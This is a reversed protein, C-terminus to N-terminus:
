MQAQEASHQLMFLKLIKWCNFLCSCIQIYEKKKSLAESRADILEYLMDLENQAMDKYMNTISDTISKVGSAAELLSAKLGGLKEQYELETYQGDAYLENLNKIDNSYNAVEDRALEYQKVLNAIHAAGYETLEGDKDFLMSDDILGDIGKLVNQLRQAAAHAREFARWYVDDRLADKLEEIEVNLNNINTQAGYWIEKWEKASKGGVNEGTKIATDYNSQAQESQKLYQAIEKNVFEIDKLYESEKLDQGLAKELKRKSDLFATQSDLYKLQKEIKEFPIQIISNAYEVNAKEADKIAKAYGNAEAQWEKATKGGFVGGNAEAKRVNRLAQRYEKQYQNIEKNNDNILKQYDKVSLMYGKAEKLSQQAKHLDAFSNLYSLQKEAKEFPINKIANNWEEQSVACEKASNKYGKYANIADKYEQSSKTWYGTRLNTRIQDMVAAAENEYNRQESRSQKILNRYDKKNLSYGKTTKLNQNTQIATTKAQIENQKNTYKQEVNAVMQTGIAAKETKATEKDIELQAEAQLKSELANNYNLCSNYFAGTVYGKSYYKSIKALLAPSIAKGSKVAKQAADIANNVAKKESDSLGAYGVDRQSANSKSIRSRAARMSKRYENIEAKDNKIITDYSKAAKKLYSNKGKASKANEAKQQNLSAKNQTAEDKNSYISAINQFLESSNSAYALAKELRENELNELSLNYAYVREYAERSYNRIVKVDSSSVPRKNKIASIANNLAERYKEGDAAGLEASLKNSASKGLKRSDSYLGAIASSYAANRQKIQKNTYKLQSNAFAGTAIGGTGISLYNDISELKADRQADRLDKLSKVYGNVEDHLDAISKLCEQSKNYWEQYDKIVEQLEESYSRIDITGNAVLAAISAADDSTILGESIARSMVDNAQQTYRAWGQQNYDSLRSTESIASRYNRSALKYDGDESAREAKQIYSDIRNTTKEIKVEIWDFLSSFWDQFKELATKEEEGSGGSDNNADTTADYVADYVEDYTKYDKPPQVTWDPIEFVVGDNENLFASGSAFSVGRGSIHGKSLLSQTQKHNFVIAGKPIDVFEAGDDGVTYWRGTRGDVVIEAGLEGVLARQKRSTGWKGGAHATGSLQTSGTSTDYVVKRHVANDKLSQDYNTIYDGFPDYIVKRNVNGLGDVYDDVAKHVPSFVIEKDPAEYGEILSKDIDADILMQADISDIASQVSETTLTDDKIGLKARIEPDTAQIQAVLENLKAEEESTDEGLEMGVEINNSTEQFEQLLDLLLGIDGQVGSTDVNMIEPRSLDQKQRVCYEIIANAYEIQSADIDPEAKLNKMNVINQDLANIALSASEFDSVDLTLRQNKGSTLNRLAEAAEVAEIHLEDLSKAGESAFKFKGGKLEMYDFMAQVLPLGLNMGESFEKMTREGVTKWNDGVKEVLGIDAADKLFEEINMGMYQGDDDYLFYKHISDLYNNIAETDERDITDPIVFDLAAKYKPDGINGFVKWADDSSKPNGNKDLDPAHYNLTNDILEMAEAAEGFMTGPSEENKADLWRQYASTAQDISDSLLDYQKISRNLESNQSLLSSIESNIAARERKDLDIKSELLRRLKQINAANELYKSQDQAKNAKILEKQEKAKADTIKNVMEVNYRLGGNYFELASSYDKLTQYDEASIVKGTGQSNIANRMTGLVSTFNSVKANTYDFGGQVGAVRLVLDLYERLRAQDEPSAVKSIAEEFVKFIGTAGGAGNSGTLADMLSRIATELNGGENALEPFTDLLDMLVSDPDKNQALNDLASNLLDMQELYEKVNTQFATAKGDEGIILRKFSDAFGDLELELSNIYAEFQARDEPTALKSLMEEFYGAAGEAGMLENKVAEIAPRIDTFHGSLQPFVEVLADFSQLGFTGKDISAIAENLKERQKRYDEIYKEFSTKESEKDSGSFLDSFSIKSEDKLKEAGDALADSINNFFGEFEPMTALQGEIADKVDVTRGIFLGSAEAAKTMSNVLADYESQTKPIESNGLLDNISSKARSSNYDDVYEKTRKYADGLSSILGTLTEYASSGRLQESSYLGENIGNMLATEAEKLAEYVNLASEADEIDFKLSYGVVAGQSGITPETIDGLALGSKLIANNIIEAFMDESESSDFFIGEKSTKNLKERLEDVAKDYGELLSSLNLEIKDNIAQRINEDLKAYDDGLDRVAKGELGLTSILNDGAEKLDDKSGTNSIYADKAKNYAEYAELISDSEESAADAADYASQRAEERKQKLNNYAAVAIVIVAALSAVAFQAGTASIGLAKLTATLKSTGAAAASETANFYKIVGPLRELVTLPATLISALRNFASGLKLIIGLLANVKISAVIGAVGVLVTKLGGIKNALIVIQDIFNIVRRGLDIFTKLFDSKLADSGLKAFASKFANIHATISQMYTNYSDALEGASNKMAEMAGLGETGMNQMLSFFVAQQRTGAITKALAAQEKSGIQDWIAALDVVVDYTSRLGKTEEDILSVSAYTDDELKIKSLAKVMKEYEATTMAEGLDDLETKVNRLRAVLTRLGTSSKAANQITTNAATLLAVSEDFENGAAALASSANNMGEAIQSVSIPFNNGVKVLRDMISEMDDVGVDYAKIIATIADQADQAEIDGVGQLQATLGSLVKSEELTYGLRAYTTTADILDTMSAGLRQATEAIDDAFKAYTADTENTVIKLQTLADDLEISASIMQRIARIAQMIAQSASFWYAFKQGLGSLRESWSKTADGNAKIVSINKTAETNIRKLDESFAQPSKQGSDYAARLNKLEQEYTKLSKYAEASGEKQSQQARTYNKTANTVLNLTSAYQKDIKEKSVKAVERDAKNAENRKNKYETVDRSTAKLNTGIETLGNSLEKLAKSDRKSNAFTDFLERAKQVYGDLSESLVKYTESEDNGAKILNQQQTFIRSIVDEVKSEAALYNDIGKTSTNTTNSTKAEVTEAAKKKSENLADVQTKLEKIEKSVTAIDVLSAASAKDVRMSKLNSWDIDALAKLASVNVSAIEPLYTALNILPTKSLGKLDKFKSLDVTSIVNLQGANPLNSLSTLLDKLNSSTKESISLGNLRGLNRTLRELDDLAAFDISGLERLSNLLSSVSQFTNNVSAEAQGSSQILAVLIQGISTLGASDSILNQMAARQADTLEEDRSLEDAVNTLINSQSIIAGSSLETRLMDIKATIEELKNYFSQLQTTDINDPLLHSFEAKFAAIAENASYAGSEINEFFGRFSGFVRDGPEINNVKLFNEFEIQAKEKLGDLESNINEIEDELEKIGSASDYSNLREQLETANNEATVLRSSLSEISRQMQEVNGSASLKTFVQELDGGAETILSISKYADRFNEVSFAEAVNRSLNSAASVSKTIESLSDGFTKKLDLGSAKLSNFNKILEDANNSSANENFRKFAATVDNILQEEEKLYNHLDNGRAIRNLTNAFETLAEQGKITVQIPQEVKPARITINDNDM